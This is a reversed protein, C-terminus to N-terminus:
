KKYKAVMAKISKELEGFESSIESKKFDGGLISKFDELFRIASKELRIAKALFAKPNKEIEQKSTNDIAKSVVDAVKSTIIGFVPKTKKKGLKKSVAKRKKFAKLLASCFDSSNKYEIKQGFARVSKMKVVEKEAKKAKKTVARKVFVPTNEKPKYGAPKVMKTLSSGKRGAGERKGGRQGKPKEVKDLKPKRGQGRGAGGHSKKAPAAKEDSKIEAKAEKVKKSVKKAKATAKEVKEAVGKADALNEKADKIDKKGGEEVADKVEAKASEVAIAAKASAEALENKVKELKDEANKMVREPANQKKAIELMREAKVLDANIEDINRM